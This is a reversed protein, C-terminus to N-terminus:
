ARVEIAIMQRRITSAVVLLYTGLGVPTVLILWYTRHWGTQQISVILDVIIALVIVSGTAAVGLFLKRNPFQSAEARTRALFTGISYALASYFPLTILVQDFCHNAPRCGWGFYHSLLSGGPFSGALISTKESVPLPVAIMEYCLVLLPLVWLWLMVRHQLSRGLLWGLVLAFVIQVPFYPTESVISYFDRRPYTHGFLYLIKFGLSFVVPATFSVGYTAIFQHLVFTLVSKM